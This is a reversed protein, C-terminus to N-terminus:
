NKFLIRTKVQWHNMQLRNEMMRNKTCNIGDIQESYNDFDEFIGIEPEKFEERSNYYIESAM